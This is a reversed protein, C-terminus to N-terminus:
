AYGQHLTSPPPPSEPSCLVGTCQPSLKISTIAKNSRCAQLSNGVAVLSVALLPPPPPHPPSLSLAVRRGRPPNRLEELAGSERSVRITEPVVRELASRTPSSHKTRFASFGRANAAGPVTRGGAVRLNAEVGGKWGPLINSTQFPPLGLYEEQQPAGRIQGSTAWDTLRLRATLKGLMLSRARLPCLQLERLCRVGLLSDTISLAPSVTYAAGQQRDSSAPEALASRGCKITLNITM